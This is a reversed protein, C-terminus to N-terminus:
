KSPRDIVKQLAAIKEKANEEIVELLTLIQEAAALRLERSAHILPTESTMTEELRRRETLVWAPDPIVKYKRVLLRWEEGHRGYGLHWAHFYKETYGGEDHREDLVFEEEIESEALPQTMFVELGLKLANLDAEIEKLEATFVDSAKNLANAATALSKLRSKASERVMTAEM